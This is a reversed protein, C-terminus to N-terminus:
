FRDLKPPDPDNKKAKQTLPEYTITELPNDQKELGKIRTGQIVQRYIDTAEQENITTNICAAMITNHVEVQEAAHEGTMKNLENICRIMPNLDTAKGEAQANQYAMVAGMSLLSLREARKLAYPAIVQQNLPHMLLGYYKGAPGEMLKAIRKAAYYRRKSERYKQGYVQCFAGIQDLGSSLSLAFESERKNCARRALDLEAYYDSM